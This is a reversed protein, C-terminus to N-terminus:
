PSTDSIRTRENEITDPADDLSCCFLNHTYNRIEHESIHAFFVSDVETDKHIAVGQNLTVSHTLSNLVTSSEHHFYM